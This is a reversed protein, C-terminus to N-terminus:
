VINQEPHRKVKRVLAEWNGFGPLGLGLCFLLLTMPITVVFYIWIPYDVLEFFNMGFFTATFTAPLFIVTLRTLFETVDRDNNRIEDLVRQSIAVSELDVQHFVRDLQRELRKENSNAREQMTKLLGITCRMEELTPDVMLRKRESGNVGATVEVPPFFNACDQEMRALATGSASMTEIGHTLHRLLGLLHYYLEISERKALDLKNRTTLPQKPPGKTNPLSNPPPTGPAAQGGQQKRVGDDDEPKIQEELSKLPDRFRWVSGDIISLVERLLITHISFPNESVGSHVNTENVNLIHDKMRKLLRENTEKVEGGALDFCLLILSKSGTLTERWLVHFCLFDWSFNTKIKLPIDEREDSTQIQKILYRATSVHKRGGDSLIGTYSGNHNWGLFGFFYWPVHYKANLISRLNSWKPSDPRIERVSPM